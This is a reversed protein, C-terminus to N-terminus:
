VALACARCMMTTRRLLNFPDLRDHGLLSLDLQDGLLLLALLLRLGLFPALDLRFKLEGLAVALGM